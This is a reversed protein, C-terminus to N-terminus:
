TYSVPPHVHHAAGADELAIEEEVPGVAIEAIADALDIGRLTREVQQGALVVERTRGLVRLAGSGLDLACPDRGHPLDAVEGHALVGGLESAVDQRHQLLDAGVASPM